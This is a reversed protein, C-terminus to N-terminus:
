RIWKFIRILHGGARTTSSAQGGAGGGRSSSWLIMQVRGIILSQDVAGFSRSDLSDARNDGLVFYSAPPVLQSAVSWTENREALYPEPRTYGGVRLQGLHSEVLEGPRAVIRKVLVKEEVPHRFVVVDGPRPSDRWYRTVLVVDGPILTPQMSPSPISFVMVASRVLMALAIAALIPEAVVMLIHKERKM